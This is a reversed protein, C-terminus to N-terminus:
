YRVPYTNCNRTVLYTDKLGTVEYHQTRSEISTGISQKKM